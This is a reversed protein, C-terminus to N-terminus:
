GVSFTIFAIRLANKVRIQINVHLVVLLGSCEAYVNMFNVWVNKIYKKQAIWM